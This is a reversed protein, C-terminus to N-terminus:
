FLFDCVEVHAAFDGDRGAAVDPTAERTAVNPLTKFFKACLECLRLGSCEHVRVFLHPNPKTPHRLMIDVTSQERNAIFDQQCACLEVRPAVAKFKQSLSGSSM